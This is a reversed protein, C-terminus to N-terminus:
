KMVFIPDISATTLCFLDNARLLLISRWKERADAILDRSTRSSAPLRRVM